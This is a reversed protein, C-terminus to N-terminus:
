GARATKPHIEPNGTKMDREWFDYDFQFSHDQGFPEISSSGNNIYLKAAVTIAEARQFPVHGPECM